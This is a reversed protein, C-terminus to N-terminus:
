SLSLFKFYRKSALKIIVEGCKLKTLMGSLYNVEDIHIHGLMGAVTKADKEDQLRFIFLNQTNKRIDDEINTPSQTIVALS